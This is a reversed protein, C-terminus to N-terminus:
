RSLTVKRVRINEWLPELLHEQMSQVFKVFMTISKFGTDVLKDIQAPFM